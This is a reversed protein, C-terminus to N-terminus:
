LWLGRVTGSLRFVLRSGDVFFFQLGQRTAVSGDVPDTYNFERAEAIELSGCPVAFMAIDDCRDFGRPSALFLILVVHQQM